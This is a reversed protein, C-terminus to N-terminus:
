GEEPHFSGRAQAARNAAADLIARVKAITIYSAPWEALIARVEAVEPPEGPEYWQIRDVAYAVDEARPGPDGAYPIVEVDLGYRDITASVGNRHGDWHAQAVLRTLDDM